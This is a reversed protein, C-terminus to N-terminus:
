GFLIILLKYYEIQRKPYLNWM